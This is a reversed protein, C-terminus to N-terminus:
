NESHKMNVQQHDKWFCQTATIVFVYLNPVLLWNCQTTLVHHVFYEEVTAAIISYIFFNMIQLPACILSSNRCLMRSDAYVFDM